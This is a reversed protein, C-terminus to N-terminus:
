GDNELLKIIENLYAQAKRLDELRKPKDAKLEVEVKRDPLYGYSALVDLSICEVVLEQCGCYCYGCNMRLFIGCRRCKSFCQYEIKERGNCTVLNKAM